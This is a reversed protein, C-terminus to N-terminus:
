FNFNPNNKFIKLKFIQHNHSNFTIILKLANHLISNKKYYNDLYILRSKDKHSSVM